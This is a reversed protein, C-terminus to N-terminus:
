GWPEGMALGSVSQQPAHNPGNLFRSGRKTGRGAKSQTVTHRSCYYMATDAATLSGLQLYVEDKLTDRTITIRPKLASNYETTGGAATSRISGLWELGTGPPQRAWSWYHSSVSVGTVKCTISLSGGPKVLGPGTQLLQVQSLVCYGMLELTDGLVGM